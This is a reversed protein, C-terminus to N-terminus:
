VVNGKVFSFFDEMVPELDKNGLPICENKMFKIITFLSQIANSFVVSKFLIRENDVYKDVHIIKLQKVITSKGSEGPGLLLVKVERLVSQGDELLEKEIALSRSAAAKNFIDNTTVCLSIGKSCGSGMRARSHVIPKDLVVYKDLLLCYGGYLTFLSFVMVVLLLRTADFRANTPRQHEFAWAQASIMGPDRRALMLFIVFLMDIDSSTYTSLFKVKM